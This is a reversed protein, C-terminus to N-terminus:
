MEHKLHRARFARRHLVMDCMAASALQQVCRARFAQRLVMDCRVVAPHIQLLLAASHGGVRGTSRNNLIYM